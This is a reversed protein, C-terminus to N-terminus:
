LKGTIIRTFGERARNGEEWYASHTGIGIVGTGPDSPFVWGGFDGDVPDRGHIWEPAVRIVDNAARTSYVSDSPIGSLESVHKVGVGPSGVFIVADAPFDGNKGAHGIVTSGYSHGLVTNRSPGDGDHTARLGEQFRTLNPAGDDAYHGKVANQVQDPADYGLWYVASTTQDPAALAADAAMTDARQMDGRAGALDATTGPVYTVVNHAYDPNNVAVIARGDDETSIGLLFAPPQQNDLRNGIADLGGLKGNVADLDARVQRSLAGMPDVGTIPDSLERLRNELARKQDLLDQTQRDLVIRNAADRDVAPVGDLWGVLEPHQRIALEQQEPTLSEWWQRVERPPRGTQARIDDVPVAPAKRPGFGVGAPPITASIGSATSDDLARAFTLVARLDGTIGGIARATRDLNGGTYASAPATVNLTTTDVEFGAQRASAIIEEAQRRFSAMGYAHQDMALYVRRAPNYHNSVTTCLESARTRAASAGGGSPWVTGLDRTGNIMRETVDDTRQALKKWADAATHWSTVDTTILQELTLGSM